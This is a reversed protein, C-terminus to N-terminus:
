ALRDRVSQKYAAKQVQKRRKVSDKVYFTRAKLEKLIKAREFKKKFRKLARDVNENDKIKVSIMKFEKQSHLHVLFIRLFLYKFYFFM